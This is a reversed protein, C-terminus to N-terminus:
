KSPLNKRKQVFVFIQFLIIKAQKYIYVPHHIPNHWPKASFKKFIFNAQVISKSPM